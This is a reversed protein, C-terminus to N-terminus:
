ERAGAVEFQLGMPIDPHQDLVWVRVVAPQEGLVAILQALAAVDMVGGRDFPGTKMDLPINIMTGAPLPAHSDSAM